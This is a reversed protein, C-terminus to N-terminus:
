RVEGQDAMPDCSQASPIVRLVHNAYFCAKIPQGTIRTSKLLEGVATEFGGQFSAPATVPLDVTLAWHSDDFFWNAQKSWRNLAQRITGDSLRLDFGGAAATTHHVSPAPADAQYTAMARLHGGQFLLKTWHGEIMSYAGQQTLDIVKWGKPVQAFVSPVAQHPHWQLWIRDGSSFVQRPAVRQDGSLKWNFDPERSLYPSTSKAQDFATISTDHVVCGQLVLFLLTTVVIVFGSTPRICM